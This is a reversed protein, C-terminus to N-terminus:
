VPSNTLQRAVNGRTIDQTWQCEVGIRRPTVLNLDALWDLINEIDGQSWGPEFKWKSIALGIEEFRNIFDKLLSVKIRKGRPSIRHDSRVPVNSIIPRIAPKEAAIKSKEIELEEMRVSFAREKDNEELKYRLYIYLLPAAVFLMIIVISAIKWFWVDFAQEIKAGPGFDGLYNVTPTPHPTYTPLPALPTYTPLPSLPTYTPLPQQTPIPIQTALQIVKPQDINLTSVDWEIVPKGKLEPPVSENGLVYFLATILLIMVIFLRWTKM